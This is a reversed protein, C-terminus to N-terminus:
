GYYEGVDAYQITVEAIQFTQTASSSYVKVRAKQGSVTFDFYKRGTALGTATLTQAQDTWTIGEDVSVSVTLNVGTTSIYGVMVRLVQKVRFPLEFDFDKSEWQCVIATGDDSLSNASFGMVDGGSVGFREQVKTTAGADWTDTAEDWTGVEQDWTTTDAADIYPAQGVATVTHALSYRTWEGNDLNLVWAGTNTTATGEPIFLVIEKTENIFTGCAARAADRNLVKYFERRMKGGFPELAPTGNFIWIDDEGVILHGIGIDIVCFPLLLGQGNVVRIFYFPNNVDGTRQGMWINNEKYVVLSDLLVGLNTIPDATQDFDNIGSGAGTWAALSSTTSWRIRTPYTVSSEVTYASIIRDAFAALYRASHNQGSTILEGFTSGGAWNMINNVGQSFIFNNGEAIVMSFQDGATGDLTDNVTGTFPVKAWNGATWQWLNGTNAGGGTLRVAVRTGDTKRFEAVGTVAYTDVTGIGSYGPRRALLGKDFHLNSIVTAAQDPLAASPLSYDLGSLPRIIKSLPM